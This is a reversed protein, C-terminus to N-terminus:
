IEVGERRVNRWFPGEGKEWVEHSVPLLSILIGYRLNFDVIIDVARDIERSPLIEGELILALDVDSDPGAEGRAQSGYCILGHLRGAYRKALQTKFETLIKNIEPSM